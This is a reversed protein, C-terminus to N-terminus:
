ETESALTEGAMPILRWKDGRAHHVHGARGRWDVLTLAGRYEM